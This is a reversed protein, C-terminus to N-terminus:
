YDEITMLEDWYKFRTKAKEFIKIVDVDMQCLEDLLQQDQSTHAYNFAYHIEKQTSPLFYDAKESLKMLSRCLAIRPEFRKPYITKADFYRRSADFYEENYMHSDGARMMEEFSNDIFARKSKKALNNQKEIKAIAHDTKPLHFAKTNEYYTKSILIIGFALTLMKVIDRILNSNEGMRNDVYNLDVRDIILIDM